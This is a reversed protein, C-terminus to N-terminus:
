KGIPLPLEHSPQAGSPWARVNVYLHWKDPSLSLGVVCYCTSVLLISVLQTGYGTLKQTAGARIRVM